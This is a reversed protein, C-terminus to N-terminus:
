GRHSRSRGSRDDELRHQERDLHSRLQRSLEFSEQDGLCSWADLWPQEPKYPNGLHDAIYVADWGQEDLARWRAVLAEWPENPLTVVSFQM